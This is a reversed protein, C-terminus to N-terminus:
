NRRATCNDYFHLAAICCSTTQSKSQSNRLKVDIHSLFPNLNLDCIVASFHNFDFDYIVLFSKLRSKCIM